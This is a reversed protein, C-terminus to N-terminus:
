FVLNLLELQPLNVGIIIRNMHRLLFTLPYDWLYFIIYKQHFATINHTHIYNALELLKATSFPLLAIATLQIFSNVALFLFDNLILVNSCEKFVNFKPFKSRIPHSPSQDIALFTNLFTLEFNFILTM